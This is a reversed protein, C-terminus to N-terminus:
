NMKICSTPMNPSSDYFDMTNKILDDVCIKKRKTFSLLITNRKRKLENINSEICSKVHSNAGEDLLRHRNVQQLVKLTASWNKAVASLVDPDTNPHNIIATLMEVTTYPHRAMATLVFASINVNPHTMIVNLMEGTMHRNSAIAPLIMAEGSGVDPYNAIATLVEATVQASTAVASVVHSDTNPHNIITTLLDATINPNNAIDELATSNTNPDNITTILMDLDLM